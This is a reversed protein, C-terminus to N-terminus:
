NLFLTKTRSLNHAPNSASHCSWQRREQTWSVWSCVWGIGTVTEQVVRSEPIERRWDQRLTASYTSSLMCKSTLSVHTRPLARDSRLQTVQSLHCLSKFSWSRMQLIPMILCGDSMIFVIHNYKEFQLRNFQIWPLPPTGHRGIYEHQIIEGLSLPFLGKKCHNHPILLYKRNQRPKESQHTCICEWTRKKSHSSTTVLWFLYSQGLM